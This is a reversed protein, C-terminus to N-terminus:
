SKVEREWVLKKGFGMRNDTYKVSEMVLVWLDLKMAAAYPFRRLYARRAVTSLDFPQFTSLDTPGLSNSKEVKRGKPKEVRAASGAIQVGRIQGIRRTEWAVGCSVRPNALMEQGHRTDPDTTFVLCAEKELFAYFGHAVWPTNEAATALTLVHHKKLFRSIRSDLPRFTSLDFLGDNDSKEVKRGKLKEVKTM